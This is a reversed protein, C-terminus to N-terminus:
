GLQASTATSNIDLAARKSRQLVYTFGVRSSCIDSVGGEKVTAPRLHVRGSALLHRQQISPQRQGREGNCHTLSGSGLHASTATSNIASAARKPRQLGYTFGVQASCIFQHSIGGDKVTAARLHVRGSSLLHISPQHRWRQGNCGTLSGSRLQASSNIASAAM